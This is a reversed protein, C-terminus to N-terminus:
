FMGGTAHDFLRGDLELYRPYRARCMKKAHADFSSTVALNGRLRAADLVEATFSPKGDSLWYEVALTEINSISKIHDNILEIQEKLWALRTQYLYTLLAALCAVIVYQVITM